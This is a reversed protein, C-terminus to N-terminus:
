LTECTFYDYAISISPKLPDATAADPDGKTATDYQCGYLVYKMYPKDLNDLLYLCIECEIDEQNESTGAGGDGTKWCIEAWDRIFRQVLGNTTENLVLTIPSNYTAVGKQRKKHGRIQIDITEVEKEPIGMSEARFNIDEPNPANEIKNPMTNFVVGWRFASAFNGLKRVDSLTPRYKM